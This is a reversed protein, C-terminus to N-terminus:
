PLYRWTLICISVLMCTMGTIGIGAFWNDYRPLQKSVDLGLAVIFLIFGITFIM